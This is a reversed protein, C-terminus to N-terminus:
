AAEPKLGVLIQRLYMLDAASVTGDGTLDANTRSIKEATGAFYKLLRVLDLIDIVGDGNVDGPNKVTWILGEGLSEQLAETWSSDEAPYYVTADQVDTFANEGITPAPGAFSIERIGFCSSFASDGIETLTAPLSLETLGCCGEFAFSGISEVGEPLDLSSLSSCGAFANNGITKVSGPISLTEMASCDSFASAGIATVTEPIEVERLRCFAFAWSGVSTVGPKLLLAQVQNNGSWPSPVARNQRSAYDWMPGTGSVTVLGNEDLRWTLDDGCAGSDVIAPGMYKAEWTLTGGYNQRVEETWSADDEPYYVTATVSSFAYDDITPASGQFTVETLGKCNAFAGSGLSELSEPLSVSVIGCGSFAGDGIRQLSDGLTLATLQECGSFASMGISEVGAPLSVSTLSKCYSFASDGIERLSDPLSLETIPFGANFGGNFADDGVSTVGDGLVVSKIQAGSSYWPQHSRNMDWMDGTGTVTLVGNADLSWTLDDGCRETSAPLINGNTCHVTTIYHEVTNPGTMLKWQASTGNYYIDTLRECIIAFAKEGVSNVSAPITVSELVLCNAFAEVGIEKVGDELTVKTFSTARFASEGIREVSGPVRLEGQLPGMAFAWDGIERLGGPLDIEEVGVYYFASKGISVLSEPLTLEDITIFYYGGAFAAEGVYTIGEEIVIRKIENYHDRMWDAMTDPGNGYDWMAGTGSITLVGNESLSWFANEGCQGSGLIAYDGEHWTINGGYSQRVEETWSADGAPYFATAEVCYFADSAIEPATGTFHIEKLARCNYFAKSGISALGAPLTITEMANGAFAGAGIATLTEPVASAFTNGSPCFLLATMDKNYLVGDAVCFCSNDESVTISQPACDWFAFDGLTKVGKPLLIEELKRCSEFAHGGITELSEPLSISPLATCGSFAYAGITKMSEPLSVSTLMVCGSFAKDCLTSAGEEVQVSRISSKYSQWLEATENMEWMPGTGTVTLTGQNDLTWTLADGCDGSAVNQAGHADYAAWTITGMYNQRIEETWSPDGAPYYVTATLGGFCREGLSPASGQFYIETLSCGALAMDDLVEISAPLTITKLSNCGQFALNKIRRLTNPLEISTLATRSHFTRYGISTIGESLCARQTTSDGWWKSWTPEGWMDGTGTVFLTNDSTTWTIEDGCQNHEARPIAGDTCLIRASYNDVAFSGGLARWQAATGNYRIVCTCPEPHIPDGSTFVLSFDGFSVVSAPITIDTIPCQALAREGLTTLGEQMSVQTLATCAHFAGTGIRRLSAPLTVSTITRVHDFANDGISTVGEEVVISSAGSGLSIYTEYNWMDGTGSITLVGDQLSWTLNDGCQSPDIAEITGDSCVIPFSINKFDPIAQKWAEVTGGYRIETISPCHQFATSDIATVTRAISFTSCNSCEYFTYAGLKTVGEEVVVSKIQSPYDYWPPMNIFDGTSGTGSITLLGDDDLTWTLNEGCTGSSAQIEDAAPERPLAAPDITGETVPAITGQEDAPASDTQEIGGDASAAPFFSLVLCLSLLLSLIKTLKRM